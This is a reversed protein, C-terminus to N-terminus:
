IEKGNFAAMKENTTNEIKIGRDVAMVFINCGDCLLIEAESPYASYIEKDM